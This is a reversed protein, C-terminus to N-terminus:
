HRVGRRPGDSSGGSSQSGRDVRISRPPRNAPAPASDAGGGEMSSRDIVGRPPGISGVVVRAVETLSSNSRRARLRLIVFAEDPGIVLREGLVGKAQEIIVRSELATTLQAVASTLRHKEDLLGTVSEILARYEPPLGTRDIFSCSPTEVGTLSAEEILLRLESVLDDFEVSRM